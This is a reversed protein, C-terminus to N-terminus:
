VVSFPENNLNLFEVDIVNASSQADLIVNMPLLFIRQGGLYRLVLEAAGTRYWAYGFLGGFTLIAGGIIALASNANRNRFVQALRSTLRQKDSNGSMASNNSM